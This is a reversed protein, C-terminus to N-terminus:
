RPTDRLEHLSRAWDELRTLTSERQQPDADLEAIIERLVAKGRSLRSKITGDPEGVTSAIEATTMGEWYHLEFVIQAEIPLRRLATLLLRRQEEVALERSPSGVLEAVSLQAFDEFRANRRLERYHHFLQHRAIGLLYARFSRQEDIRDRAEVCALLTKQALDDIADHVKNHFFRYLSGVHREALAGGAAEDGARWRALLEYDTGTM